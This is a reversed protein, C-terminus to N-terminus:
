IRPTEGPLFRSRLLQRLPASSVRFCQGACLSKFLRAQRGGGEKPSPSPTLGCFFRGDKRVAAKNLGLGLKHSRSRSPAKPKAKKWKLFASRFSVTKTSQLSRRLM